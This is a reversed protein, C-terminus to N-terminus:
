TERKTQKLDFASQKLHQPGENDCRYWDKAGADPLPQLSRAMRGTIQENADRRLVYPAVM